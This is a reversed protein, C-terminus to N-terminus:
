PKNHKTLFIDELTNLTCISKIFIDKAVEIYNGNQMNFYKKANKCKDNSNSFTHAMSGSRLDWLNRLFTIMNPINVQNYQLFKELKTIVKDGKKLTINKSLEADNLKDITLKSISLIQENFSKQNNSTPIHLSNFIYEDEKALPKYFEWSFKEEWKKNFEIYKEKFLLDATESNKIWKGEIMTQYYSYSMGNQPQINYQKWHLEKGSTNKAVINKKAFDLYDITERYILPKGNRVDILEWQKTRIDQKTDWVQLKFDSLVPSTKGGFKLVSMIIGWRKLGFIQANVMACDLVKFKNHFWSDRNSKKRIDHERCYWFCTFNKINQQIKNIFLVMKREEYPPNMVVVVPKKIDKIIDVINTQKGRYLFEPMRDPHNLFDYQRVNQFGNARCINVDGDEYTSVFCYSKDPIDILLNCTGCAFDLWVVDSDPFIGQKALMKWQLEVLKKPTYQAGLERRYEDSFLMNRHEAIYNYVEKTPPLKFRKWFSTHIEPVELDFYKSGDDYIGNSYTFSTTYEKGQFLNNDNYITGNLLDCLFLQVLVDDKVDNKAVNKFSIMDRWETFLRISNDITINIETTDFKIQQILTHIDEGIFPEFYVTRQLKDFFARAEASPASPTEQEFKVSMNNFYTDSYDFAKAVFRGYKQYVIVYRNFYRKRKGSNILIEAFALNFDSEVIKFEFAANNLILDFRESLDITHQEFLNTEQFDKLYKLCFDIKLKEELTQAVKAIKAM